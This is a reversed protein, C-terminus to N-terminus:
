FSAFCYRFGQIGDYPRYLGDCLREISEAGLSEPDVAWIAAVEEKSLTQVLTTSQSVITPLVKYLYPDIVLGQEYLYILFGRIRCNYAAKGEPTSHLDQLHFDKLVTRSVESFSKLGVRQLYKCFRINSSRQM